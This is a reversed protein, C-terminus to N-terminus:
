AYGDGRGAGDMRMRMVSRKVVLEHSDDSDGSMSLGVGAVSGSGSGSADNPLVCKESQIMSKVAVTVRRRMM